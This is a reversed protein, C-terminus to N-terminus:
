EAPEEPSLALARMLSEILTAHDRKRHLPPPDEKEHVEFTLCLAALDALSGHEYFADM